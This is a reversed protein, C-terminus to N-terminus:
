VTAGTADVWAAGDWWTPIGLTADFYMFGTLVTTPRQATTGSNMVRRDPAVLIAGQTPHANTVYGVRSSTLTATLTGTSTAYVQDGDSFASTDIDRVLGYTTVKGNNNNTIDHTAVGILQGQGVDLGVLVLNGQGGTIRVPRGNLITAGTTNRANLWQEHGVQLAVGSTDSMVEVMGEDANWHMAGTTFPPISAAVDFLLGEIPDTGDTRGWISEVVSRMDAASIEGSTNDPLLALVEALTAM